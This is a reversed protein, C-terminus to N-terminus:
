LDNQDIKRRFLRKSLILLRVTGSRFTSGDAPALTEVPGSMTNFLPITM